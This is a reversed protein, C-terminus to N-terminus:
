RYDMSNSVKNSSKINSRDNFTPDGTEDDNVDKIFHKLNYAAATQTQTPKSIEKCSNLTIALQLIGEIDLENRERCRSSIYVDNLNSLFVERLMAERVDPNDPYARLALRYLKLHFDRMSEGRTRRSGRLERTFQERNMINYGEGEKILDVLEHLTIEPEILREIVALVSDDLLSILLNAQERLPCGM